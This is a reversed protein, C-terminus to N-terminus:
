QYAKRKTIEIDYKGMEMIETPIKWTYTKKKLKNKKFEYYEPSKELPSRQRSEFKNRM